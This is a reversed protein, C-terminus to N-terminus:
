EEEEKTDETDLLLQRLDEYWTAVTLSQLMLATGMKEHPDGAEKSMSYYKKELEELGPGKGKIGAISAGLTYGLNTFAVLIESATLGAEQFVEVLKAYTDSVKKEDFPLRKDSSM